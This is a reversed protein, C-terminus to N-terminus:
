DRSEGNKATTPSSRPKPTCREDPKASFRAFRLSTLPILREITCRRLHNSGRFEIPSADCRSDTEYERDHLKAGDITRAYYRLGASEDIGRQWGLRLTSAGRNGACARHRNMPARERSFPRRHM